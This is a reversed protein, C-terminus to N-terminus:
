QFNNSYKLLTLRDKENRAEVLKSSLLDFESDNQTQKMKERIEKLEQELFSIRNNLEQKGWIKNHIKIGTDITQATNALIGTVSEVIELGHRLKSTRSRKPERKNRILNESNNKQQYNIERKAPAPANGVLGAMGSGAITITGLFGLLKKM